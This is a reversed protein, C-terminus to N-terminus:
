IIVINRGGLILELNVDSWFVLGKRSPFLVLVFLIKLGNIEKWKYKFLYM